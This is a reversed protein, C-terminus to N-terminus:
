LLLGCVEPVARACDPKSQGLPKPSFSTQANKVVGVSPHVDSWPYGVLEGM